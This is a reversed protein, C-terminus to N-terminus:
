NLFRNSLMNKLPIQNTSYLTNEINSNVMKYKVAFGFNVKTKMVIDKTMNNYTLKKEITEVIEDIRYRAEKTSEPPLDFENLIIKKIENDYYIWISSLQIFKTSKNTISIYNQSFNIKINKDSNIYDPLSIKPFNISDITVVPKHTLEGSFIYKQTAGLEGTSIFEDVTGFNVLMNYEDIKKKINLQYGLKGDEPLCEEAIDIYINFLEHHDINLAFGTMNVIVPEVHIQKEASAILEQCRTKKDMESKRADSVQREEYEEKAKQERYGQEVDNYIKNLETLNCDREYPLLMKTNYECEKHNYNNPIDKDCNAIKGYMYQHLTHYNFSSDLDCNTKVNTAITNSCGSIITVLGFILFFKQM